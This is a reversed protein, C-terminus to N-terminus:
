KSSTSTSSSSIIATCTDIYVIIYVIIDIYVIIHLVCRCFFFSVVKGESKISRRDLATEREPGPLLHVMTRMQLDDQKQGGISGIITCTNATTLDRKQRTTMRMLRAFHERTCKM